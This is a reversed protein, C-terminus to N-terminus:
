VVLSIAIYSAMGYMSLLCLSMFIGRLGDKGKLYSYTYGLRAVPFLLLWVGAPIIQPSALIFVFSILVYYVTNETTNRHTNHHRELEYKGEDTVDKRNKDSEHWEEPTAFMNFRVRTLETTTMLWTHNILLLVSAVALLQIIEIVPLAILYANVGFAFINILVCILLLAFPYLLILYTPQNGQEKDNIAKNNKSLEM